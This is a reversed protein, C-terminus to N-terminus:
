GEQETSMRLGSRNTQNLYHARQLAVYHVFQCVTRELDTAAQRIAGMDTENFWVQVPKEGRRRKVIHRPVPKKVAAM